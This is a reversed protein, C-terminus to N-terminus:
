KNLQRQQGYRYMYKFLEWACVGIVAGIIAVVIVTKNFEAIPTIILGNIEAFQLIEGVSCGAAEGLGTIM